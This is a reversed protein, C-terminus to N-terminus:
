PSPTGNGNLAVHRYPRSVDPLRFLNVSIGYRSPYQPSRHWTQGDALDVNWIATTRGNRAVVLRYRMMRGEHNGVGLNLTSANKNTRILWLQTYGAYHQVAVGLRAVGLACVAIVVAAGFAIAKRPPLRWDQRRLGFSATASDRQHRRWLLVVDCILTVGALLGLWATRQLPLGSGVILLGGLIPVCLALGSAVVVRELGAIHSGFLLQSLLYGPAALLAIGLVATVGVPAGFSGAACALVAVAATAGLDIQNRSM